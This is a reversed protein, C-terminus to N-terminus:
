CMMERTRDRITVLGRMELGHLADSVGNCMRGVRDSGVGMKRLIAHPGEGIGVGAGGYGVARAFKIGTAIICIM